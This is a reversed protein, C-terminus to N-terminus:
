CTFPCKRPKMGRQVKTSETYKMSVRAKRKSTRQNSWFTGQSHKEVKKAVSKKAKATKIAARMADEGCFRVFKRM